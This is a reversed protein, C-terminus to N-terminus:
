EAAPRRGRSPTESGSVARAPGSAADRVLEAAADAPGRGGDAAAADARGPRLAARGDDARVASRRGHFADDTRRRRDGRVPPHRVRRAADHATAPPAAVSFGRRRLDALVQLELVDLPTYRRETFGGAETRHAAIAATFLRRADWWQLQRATLGTLVAVERSTYLKKLKVARIAGAARAGSRRARARESHPRGGHGSDAAGAVRRKSLARHRLVRRANDIFRWHDAVRRAHDPRLGCARGRVEASRAAPLLAQACELLRQVGETTVSEDFGVDEVTAGVLLRGDEWPVLYGDLAGYWALCLRGSSAFSCSSGAFPGHVPAPPAAAMPIGGSWSGAALVVVNSTLTEESTEVRVLGAATSVGLVRAASLTAGARGVAETLASVLTAVGVYGHEPILLGSRVDEALAPELSKLASGDLYSHPVGADVLADAEKELQRSEDDTRAVQLTGSRRYEIRRQADASVRTIFSDYLELSGLGLRLLAESHGEIRPALMGASARSAGQGTGRPDILRVATGRAALEYAIACGVVGAGVVTM